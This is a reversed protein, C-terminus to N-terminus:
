TSPISCVSSPILWFKVEHFENHYNYNTSVTNELFASCMEMMTQKTAYHKNHIQCHSFNSPVSLTINISTTSVFRFSYFWYNINKIRIRSINNNVFKIIGILSLRSPRYFAQFYPRTEILLDNKNRDAVPTVASLFLLFYLLAALLTRGTGTKPIMSTSVRCDTELCASFVM